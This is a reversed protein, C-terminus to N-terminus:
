KKTLLKKDCVDRLYNYLKIKDKLILLEYLQKKYINLNTTVNNFLLDIKQYYEKESLYVYYKRMLRVVTRFVYDIFNEDYIDLKEFLLEFEKVLKFTTIDMIPDFSRTISANTMRYKYGFENLYYINKAKSYAEYNFIIDEGRKLEENFTLNNNLIFERRYFKSWIPEVCEIERNNIIFMNKKLLNSNIFTSKNFIYKNPIINNKIMYNRTIVIDKENLLEEINQINIITDDSDLFAIYEGTAIKIGINRAHSVGMNSTKIYKINYKKILQQYNINSGDDIVIVEVNQIKQCSKLCEDLLKTPTNYVPIIISIKIM